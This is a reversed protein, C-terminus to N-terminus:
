SDVEVRSGDVLTPPPAVVYRSGDALGSVIEVSDGFVRGTRVLRFRATGGTDVIYIGTLQGQTVVASAPILLMRSEGMPIAVRAYMGSPVDSGAPLFLKVIFSRSQPDAAPMITKVVGEMSRNQMAPITVTLKQEPNVADIYNEPVNVDVRIGGKKELTLLPTGPVAMDGVEIMKATVIGDFPALIRADKKSVEAAAVAAEAQQIKQRVTDVMADAQRVSAEAQQYRAEVEDFEQRSVSDDEILRLYRQHTARALVAGAIAADRASIAATEAKHAEALAARAQSLQAAVQRDDITVLVAGRKVSEGERFNVARVTGMLKGSLTSTTQATVTGVAEYRYPHRTLKAVAVSAKVAGAPKSDTTGPEIKDGCGIPVYLIFCFTIPLIRKLLM